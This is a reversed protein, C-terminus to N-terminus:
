KCVDSSSVRVRVTLSFRARRSDMKKRIWESGSWQREWWIKNNYTLHAPSFFSLSTIAIRGWKQWYLDRVLLSECPPIPYSIVFYLHNKQRDTLIVRKRQEITWLQNGSIIRKYLLTISSLNHKVRQITMIINNEIGVSVYWKTSPRSQRHM